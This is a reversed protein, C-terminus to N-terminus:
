VEKKKLQDAIYGFTNSGVKADPKLGAARQLKLVAAETGYGFVDDMVGNYYGLAALDQILKAVAPGREGRVLMGDAMADAEVILAPKARMPGYTYDGHLILEAEDARRKVLGSLKRGQATTGTTELLNAALKYDGAKAAQAWRWALAGPGLNFVPSAMGDFVHQPVAKGLFDNVAKGYEERFLYLLVTDAEERTMQSSLSFIENPRHANWWKRFAASRWTFGIGITLIGVPDLYANPVFGEHQRTFAAGKASLEM